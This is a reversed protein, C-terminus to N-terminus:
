TRTHTHTHTRMQMIHAHAHTVVCLSDLHTNIRLHQKTYRITQQTETENLKVRARLHHCIFDVSAHSMLTIKLLLRLVAKLERSNSGICKPYRTSGKNGTQTRKLSWADWVCVCLCVLPDTDISTCVNFAQIGCLDDQKKRLCVCESSMCYVCVDMYKHESSTGSHTNVTVWFGVDMWESTNTKWIM